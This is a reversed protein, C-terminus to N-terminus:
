HILSLVMGAIAPWQGNAVAHQWPRRRELVVGRGERLHGRLAGSPECHALGGAAHNQFPTPRPLMGHRVALPGSDSAHNPWFSSSKMADPISKRNVAIRVASHRRRRSRGPVLTLRAQHEIPKITM